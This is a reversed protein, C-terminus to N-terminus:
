EDLNVPLGDRRNAARMHTDLDVSYSVSRVSNDCMVM